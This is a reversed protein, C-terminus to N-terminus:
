AIMQSHRKMNNTVDVFKFFFYDGKQNNSLEAIFLPYNLNQYLFIKSSVIKKKECFVADLFM